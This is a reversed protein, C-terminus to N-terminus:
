QSLINKVFGSGGISLYEAFPTHIAL